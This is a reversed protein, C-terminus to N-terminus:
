GPRASAIRIPETGANKVRFIAEATSGRVINGLDVEPNEYVAHPGPRAQDSGAAPTVSAPPAPNQAALAAWSAAVALVMPAIRSM